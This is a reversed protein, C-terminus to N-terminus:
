IRFDGGSRTKITGKSIDFVVNRDPLKTILYKFFRLILSENTIRSRRGMLQRQQILKDMMNTKSEKDENVKIM